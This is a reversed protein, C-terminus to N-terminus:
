TIASRRSSGSDPALSTSLKECGVTKPRGEYPYIGSVVGSWPPFLRHCSRAEAGDDAGQSQDDGGRRRCCVGEGVHDLKGDPPPGFSDFGTLLVREVHARNGGAGHTLDIRLGPLAESEDLRRGAARCGAELVVLLVLAQEHATSSGARGVDVVSLGTCRDGVILERRFSIREDVVVDEGPVRHVEGVGSLGLDVSQREALM